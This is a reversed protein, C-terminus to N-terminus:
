LCGEVQAFPVSVQKSANYELVPVYSHLNAFGRQPKQLMKGKISPRAATWLATRRTVFQVTTISRFSTQIM